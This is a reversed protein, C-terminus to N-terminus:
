NYRYKLVPNHLFTYEVLENITNGNVIFLKISYIGKGVVIDSKDLIVNFTRYGSDYYSHYPEIPITTSKIKAKGVFHKPEPCEGYNWKTSKEYQIYFKKPVLLTSPQGIDYCDSKLLQRSSLQEPVYKDYQVIAMVRGNKISYDRDIKGNLRITNGDDINYKFITVHKSEFHNVLWLGKDNYAIGINVINYDKNMMTEYHGPSDYLGNVLKEVRDIPDFRIEDCLGDRSYTMAINEANPYIGGNDAYRINPKFGTKNWHSFYCEKMMNNAHKQAVLNDGLVVKELGESERYENILELNLNVLEQHTATDEEYANAIGVFTLTFVTLALIYVITQNM